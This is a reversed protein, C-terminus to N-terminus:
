RRIQAFSKSIIDEASDGAVFVSNALKVAEVRAIGLSCLVEVADEVEQSLSDTATQPFEGMVSVKDKLDVIIREATKKGVGKVSSLSKADGTAIVTCLDSYSISSLMGMAGKPGVGSVTILKMFVDKEEKSFFGFLSVGDERVQFYTWVKVEGDQSLLTKQALASVFIEYGIGNNDLVICGDTSDTIRGTLYSFM